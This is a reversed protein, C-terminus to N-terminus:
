SKAGMEEVRLFVLYTGVHSCVLCKLLILSSPQTPGFIFAKSIM